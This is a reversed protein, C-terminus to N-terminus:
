ARCDKHLSRVVYMIVRLAQPVAQIERPREGLALMCETALDAPELAEIIDQCLYESIRFDYPTWFLTLLSYRLEGSGVMWM